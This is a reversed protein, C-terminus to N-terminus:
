IDQLDGMVDAANATNFCLAITAGQQGSVANNTVPPTLTATGAFSIAGAAVQRMLVSDGATMVGNNVTVVCGGANTFRMYTGADTAQLTYTAGAITQIPLNQLDHISFGGDGIVNGSADSYTAIHGSTVTGPNTVVDAVPVTSAGLQRGTTSSFYPLVGNTNAGGPNLVLNAALIGADVIVKGTTGSFKPIDGDVSTGPNTVASGPDIDPFLEPELADYLTVIGQAIENYASVSPFRGAFVGQAIAQMLNRQGFDISAPAILADVATAVAVTKDVFDDYSSAIQSTLWREQFAGAAGSLVANFIEDNNAM